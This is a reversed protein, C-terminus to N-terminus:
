FTNWGIPFPSQSVGSDSMRRRMRYEEAERQRSRVKEERLAAHLNVGVPVPGLTSSFSICALTSDFKSSWLLVYFTNAYVFISHINM